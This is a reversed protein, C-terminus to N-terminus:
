IERSGRVFLSRVRRSLRALGEFSALLLAKAWRYSYMHRVFEYRCSFVTLRSNM